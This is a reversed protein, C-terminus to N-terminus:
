SGPNLQNRARLQGKAIIKEKFVLWIPLWIPLFLVAWFIKWPGWYSPTRCGCHPCFLGFWNGIGRFRNAPDWIRVPVDAKCGPCCAWQNRAAQDCDKCYFTVAPRNNGWLADVNGLDFSFDWNLIHAWGVRVINNGRCGPCSPPSPEVTKM